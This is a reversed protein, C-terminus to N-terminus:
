PPFPIRLAVPSLSASFFKLIRKLTLALLLLRTVANGLYFPKKIPSFIIFKFFFKFAWAVKSYKTIKASNAESVIKLKLEKQGFTFFVARFKDLCAM